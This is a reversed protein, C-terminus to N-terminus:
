PSAMTKVWGAIPELLTEVTKAPRSIPFDLLYAYSLSMGILMSGVFVTLEKWMKEKLLKTGEYWFILFFLVTVGIIKM